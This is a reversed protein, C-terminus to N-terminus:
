MGLRKSPDESVWAKTKPDLYRVTV